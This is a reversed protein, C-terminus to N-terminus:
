GLNEIDVADAHQALVLAASEAFLRGAKRSLDLDATVIGNGLLTAGDAIDLVVEAGGRLHEVLFANVRRSTQQRPGPNRYNTGLRRRLNDSEGIYIRDRGAQNALTFRYLGPRAPLPGPFALKGVSDLAVTGFRRWSFTVRADVTEVTRM